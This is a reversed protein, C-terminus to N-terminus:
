PAPSTLPKGKEIVHVTLVKAAGATTCGVHPAGAPIQFGDGAKLARDPQGAIKLVVEGELIYANEMGPHMHREFCIGSPINAVGMVTQFGAPFDSTSIPTRTIGQQGTATTLFTPLLICVTAVFKITSKM